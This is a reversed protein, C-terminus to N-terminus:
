GRTQKLTKSNMWKQLEQITNDFIKGVEYVKRRADYKSLVSGKWALFENRIQDITKIGHKVAEVNAKIKARAKDFVCPQAFRYIKRDTIKYTTKLFTFKQNLRIIRCKSQNIFIGLQKAIEQIGNVVSLLKEKDGDIIYIDDMYRGYYRCQRVTQCYHDIKNPFWVGIIQSIVAGIVVGRNLKNKIKKMNIITPSKHSLAYQSSDKLPDFPRNDFESIEQCNLHDVNHGFSNIITSILDQTDTQFIKAFSKLLQDHSINDFFKSFDIFAVYMSHYDYKTKCSILDSYFNNMAFSLGKGKLSAGNNYILKPTITPILVNDYLARQVTNDYPPLTRILRIKGNDHLFFQTYKDISYTGQAVTDRLDFLGNVRDIRTLQINRKWRSAKTSEVFARFLNNM